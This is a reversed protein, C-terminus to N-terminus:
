GSAIQPGFSLIFNFLSVGQELINNPDKCACETCMGKEVPCGCCDGGDYDCEPINNGDDCKGDGKSM